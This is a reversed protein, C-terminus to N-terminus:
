GGGADGQYGNLRRWWRGSTWKVAEMMARIDM